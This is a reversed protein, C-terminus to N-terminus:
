GAGDGDGADGGGSGRLKRPGAPERVLVVVLLVGEQAPLNNKTENNSQRVSQSWLIMIEGTYHILVSVKKKKKKRMGNMM